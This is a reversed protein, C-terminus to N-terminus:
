FRRNPGYIPDHIHPSTLTSPGKRIRGPARVPQRELQSHAQHTDKYATCTRSRQKNQQNGETPPTTEQSTVPATADPPPVGSPPCPRPCPQIHYYYYGCRPNGLLLIHTDTNLM